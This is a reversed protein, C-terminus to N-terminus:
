LDEWEQCVTELHISDESDNKNTKGGDNIKFKETAMEIKNDGDPIEKCHWAKYVVAEGCDVTVM